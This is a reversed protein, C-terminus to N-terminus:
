QSFNALRKAYLDHHVDTSIDQCLLNISSALFSNFHGFIGLFTHLSM